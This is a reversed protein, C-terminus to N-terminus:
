RWRRDADGVSVGWVGTLVEGPALVQLGWEPHNFADSGCTMPEIALSRRRHAEPLPDGSYLVVYDFATDMWVTLSPEGTPATLRIRAMGDPDRVPHLYCTNFVTGGIPRPSRFDLPTGDVPLVRGTPLLSGSAEFELASAMPVHLTDGDITGSGVTFYPHFGAAVPAPRDGTNEVRFRCTLGAQADLTYSVTARLAFPYGEAEDAGLPTAFAADTEGVGVTDWVRQRLFGHIANPGEKDSIEMQFTEGGFAYRGGRVRGPFPILVDGQGGVKGKASSYGTIIDSPAGGDAGGRWLGRLSAGYPSVRLRLDGARLIYETDPTIEDM